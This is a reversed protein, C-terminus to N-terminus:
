CPVTPALPRDVSRRAVLSRCHLAHGSSLLPVFPDRQVRHPHIAEARRLARVADDHRGRLRALARGYYTWYRVQTPLPHRQPQINHAAISVARDPEDTELAVWMRLAAADLSDFVFRDTGADIPGPVPPLLSDVEFQGAIEVAADMPATAEGPQGALVAAVAHCGTATAVFGATDATIPPLILSDLKARGPELAGGVILIDAVGFEAVALSSLKNGEQALRQALFVVRRILDDPASSHWLWLRTVLTHLYVALRVAETTSDTHGNAPAPVPLKTLESPAIELAGALALIESLTPAREGREIRNLTMRNMGALGALVRLSKDRSKRVQRVRRGITAVEDDGM